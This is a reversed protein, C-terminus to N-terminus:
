RKTLMAALIAEQLFVKIYKKVTQPRFALVRFGTNDAARGAMERCFRSRLILTNNILGM